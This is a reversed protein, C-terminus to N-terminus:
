FFCKIPHNTKKYTFNYSKDNKDNFNIVLVRRWIKLKYFLKYVKKLSTFKRFIKWCKTTTIYFIYPIAQYMSYLLYIYLKFAQLNPLTENSIKKASKLHLDSIKHLSIDCIWVFNTWAFAWNLQLLMGPKGNMCTCHLEQGGTFKGRTIIKYCKVRGYSFSSGEWDPSKLCHTCDSKNENKSKYPCSFYM